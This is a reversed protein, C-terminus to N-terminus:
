TKFLEKLIGWFSEDREKERKRYESFDKYKKDFYSRTYADYQNRVENARRTRQVEVRGSAYYNTRIYETYAGSRITTEQTAIIADVITPTQICEWAKTIKIFMQTANEEKCIDPHWRKALRRYAARAEDVTANYDIELIICAEQRTM